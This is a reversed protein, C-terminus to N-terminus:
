RTLRYSMEVLEELLPRPVNGDILVSIWNEKNMHYAPLIDDHLRLVLADDPDCKVNLTDVKGERPLGLKVAPVDFIGAYWKRNSAHRLIAYNPWREWLYEPKTGYREAVYELLEDRTM